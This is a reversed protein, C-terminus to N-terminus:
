GGGLTPPRRSLWSGTGEGLAAAGLGTGIDGGLGLGVSQRECPHVWPLAPSGSDRDGHGVALRDTGRQEARLRSRAGLDWGEPQVAEGACGPSAGSGALAQRTGRAM